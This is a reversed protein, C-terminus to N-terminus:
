DPDVFKPPRKQVNALVAEAQNAGGLIGAQLSAELALAGAADEDFARNLLAKAARVADPSQAAFQGALTRAAALPDDDIRTVLGLQQAEEAEVVRGSYILERLQDRRLLGRTTVTLGMDPMLGWRIEMLSCRTNAGAIRLDAGLAIQLGGGYAVGSLAAIVPVPVESWVLAPRQFFNAPSDDMPQLRRAFSERDEAGALVSTDMGACFHEGAGHLVVARVRRDDRLSLGTEILQELLEATLANMKAPRNLTVTAVRDQIDLLVPATM